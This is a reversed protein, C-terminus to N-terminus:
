RRAVAGGSPTWTISGGQFDNRRGGPVAYESSTPYGLWGREWGLRGWEARIAGYVAHAGTGRSWFVSGGRSFHVYRGAGDPTSREASTPYGLPGTAGGLALWTSRIGGWVPQAGTGRSWAITGRQFESTAGGDATRREDSVPYGLVSRVGGMARWRDRIAGHVERAGTARSWVVTGGAFENARGTGDETTQEGGIPYGLFSRLGGLARWHNGIGGQVAHAGHTPHWTVTGGAFESLRGVGDPAVLEGTRPYGLPGAERGTQVWAQRISGRVDHAGTSSSWAITGGAFEHVRGTGALGAMEDSRPLGLYSSPGGLALYRSLIGGHVEHTRGEPDTYIRGFSYTRSWGGPVTQVDSLPAGLNLGAKGLERFKADIRAAPNSDPVVVVTTVGNSTARQPTTRFVTFAYTGPDLPVTQKRWPSGAPEWWDPPWSPGGTSVRMGDHVTKAGSTGVRYVIDLVDGDSPAPASLTLVARGDTQYVPASATVPSPARFVPDGGLTVRRLVSGTGPALDELSQLFSVAGDEPLLRGFAGLHVELPPRDDSRECARLEHPCGGGALDVTRGDPWVRQVVGSSTVVLRGDPLVAASEAPVTTLVELSGGDASLREVGLGSALLLRGTSRDVGLGTGLLRRTLAPGTLQTGFGATRRWAGDPQVAYLRESPEDSPGVDLLFVRGGGDVAIRDVDELRVQTAPLGDSTDSDATGGGAILTSTGDPHVRRVVRESGEAGFPEVVVVDGAPGCAFPGFGAVTAPKVYQNRVRGDAGTSVLGAGAAYTLGGVEDLCGSVSQPPPADRLAVGDLADSGGAVRTPASGDTPVRWLSRDDTVLLDDGAHGIAHMGAPLTVRRLFGDSTVRWGADATTFAIDDALAHLSLVHPPAVSTASAGDALPGDGGGVVVQWGEPGYRQVGSGGAHLTGDAGAALLRGPVDATLEVLEDSGPELVFIGRGLTQGTTWDRWGELFAHITGDASTTTRAAVRLTTTAVLGEVARTLRGGQWVAVRGDGAVSLHQEGWLGIVGGLASAGDVPTGPYVSGLVTSIVGTAADVRRVRTRERLYLNGAADAAAEIPRVHALTAPGGDGARDFGVTSLASVPAETVQAGAPVAPAAVPLAGVLLVVLLASRARM